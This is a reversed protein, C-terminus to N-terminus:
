RSCKWTDKENGAIVKCFTSWGDAEVSIHDFGLSIEDGALCILFNLGLNKLV